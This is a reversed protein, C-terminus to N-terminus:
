LKGCPRRVSWRMLRVKYLSSAMTSPSRSSTSVASCDSYWASWSDCNDSACQHGGDRRQQLFAHRLQALRGVAGADIHFDQQAVQEALRATEQKGPRFVLHRRRLHLLKKVPKRLAAVARRHGVQG